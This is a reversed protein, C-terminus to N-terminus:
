GPFKLIFLELLPYASVLFLLVGVLLFLWFLKRHAVSGRGLDIVCIRLGNVSHFILLALLAIEGAIFLPQQVAEMVRDFAARGEAMSLLTWVHFVLYLTILLGTVRHLVWAVYGTHWRYHWYESGRGWERRPIGRDEREGRVEKM